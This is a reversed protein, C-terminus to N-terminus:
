RSDRYDDIADGVKGYYFTALRIYRDVSVTNGNRYAGVGRKIYTVSTMQNGKARRLYTNCPLPKSTILKIARNARGVALGYEGIDTLSLADGALDGVSLLLNLTRTDSLCADDTARAPSVVVLSVAVVLIGLLALSGPIQTPRM